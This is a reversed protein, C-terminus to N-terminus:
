YTSTTDLKTFFKAGNRLPLVDDLTKVPYHPRQVCKNLDHPDLCIRLKGSKKEVLVMSNVWDTPEHVKQIVGMKEMRDLEAKCRDKLAVPIKRPPHVIPIADPKLHIKCEGPISNLGKFAHTYDKLVSKKTMHDHPQKTEVACTIKVLDFEIGSNESPNQFCSEYFGDRSFTPTLISINSNSRSFNSNKTKTSIHFTKNVSTIDKIRCFPLKLIRTLVLQSCFFIKSWFHFNSM